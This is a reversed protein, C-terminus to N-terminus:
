KVCTSVYLQELRPAVKLVSYDREVKAKANASLERSKKPNEFVWLLKRTLDEVDDLRFILGNVENTIVGHDAAESVLICKGFSMAELLALSMGEGSSPLVFVSSKRYLDALEEQRLQGTLSIRHKLGLGSALEELQQYMPGSGVITLTADPILSAVRHFAYVLVTPRKKPILSGVFLISHKLTDEANVQDDVMEVCNPVYSANACGLGKLRSLLDLSVAVVHNSDRFLVYRM